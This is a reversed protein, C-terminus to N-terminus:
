LANVYVALSFVLWSLLSARIVDVFRPTLVCVKHLATEYFLQKTTDTKLTFYKEKKKLCVCYLDEHTWGFGSVSVWGLVRIPKSGCKICGTPDLESGM